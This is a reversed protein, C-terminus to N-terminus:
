PTYREIVVTLGTGAFEIIMRPERGHTLADKEIALFEEASIRWSAKMTTKLQDLYEPGKVDQPARRSSGSGPQVGGGVERAHRQEQAKSRANNDKGPRDWWGPKSM